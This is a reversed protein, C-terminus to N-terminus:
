KRLERLCLLICLARELILIVGMLVLVSVMVQTENSIVPLLLGYLIVSVSTSQFQIRNNTWFKAYVAYKVCLSTVLVSIFIPMCFIMEKYTKDAYYIYVILSLASVTLVLIMVRRMIDKNLAMKIAEEISVKSLDIKSLNTLTKQMPLSLLITSGLVFSQILRLEGFDANSVYGSTLNLLILIFNQSSLYFLYIKLAHYFSMENFIFDPRGVKKLSYVALCINFINALTLVLFIHKIEGFLMLLIASITYKIITEVLYSFAFKDIKRLFYVLLIVLINTIFYLSIIWSENLFLYTSVLLTSLCFISTMIRSLAGKLISICVPVAIISVFLQVRIFEKTFVGFQELGFQQSLFLSFVPLMAASLIRTIILKNIQM